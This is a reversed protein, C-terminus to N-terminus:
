TAGPAPVAVRDAQFVEPGGYRHLRMATMESPIEPKATESRGEGTTM